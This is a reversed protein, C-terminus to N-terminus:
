DGKELLETTGDTYTVLVQFGIVYGYKNYATILKTDYIEKEEKSFESFDMVSLDRILTEYEHTEESISKNLEIFLTHEINADNESNTYYKLDNIQLSSMTETSSAKINVTIDTKNGVADSVVLDIKHNGEVKLKELDKDKKLTVRCPLSDDECKAILMNLDLEEKIGIIIDDSPTVIPKKNDIVSIIGKETHKNYRVTYEYEGVKNTNVYDLYLKYDDINKINGEIYDEINSSLSDGLNIEINKLKFTNNSKIYLFVGFCLGIVFLIVLCKKFILKPNSEEYYFEEM